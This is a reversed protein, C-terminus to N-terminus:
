AAARRHRRRRWAALGVTGLGLLALSSPEPVGAAPTATGFSFDGLVPVEQAASQSDLITLSTIPSTSTFGLFGLNDFPVPTMTFSEGTSLTFLFPSPNLAFSGYDLGIATAGGPPLTIALQTSTRGQPSVSPILFDTPYNVGPFNKLTVNLADGPLANAINFNVGSLTPGPPTFTGTFGPPFSPAVFTVTQLGTVAANFAAPDTYFVLDARASPPAWLLFAWVALAGGLWRRTRM